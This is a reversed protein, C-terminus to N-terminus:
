RNSAFASNNRTKELQRNMLRSDMYNNITNNIVMNEAIMEGLASLTQRNLPLVAEPGAEGALVNSIGVGKGPNNVIGGSALKITPITIGFAASIKSSIGSFFSNFGNKASTTDTDVKVTYTKDFPNSISKKLDGMEKDADSTDVDLKYKKDFTNDLGKQTDFASEEVNKLSQNIFELQKGYEGSVLNNDEYYQKMYKLNETYEAIQDTTLVDIDYMYTQAEIQSYMEALIAKNHEKAADANKKFLLGIVGGYQAYKKTNERISENNKEIQETSNKILNTATNFINITGQKGKELETNGDEVAQKLVKPLEKWKEQLDQATKKNNEIADNTEKYADIVQKVEIYIVWVSAIALLLGLIGALGTGAVGGAGAIGIIKSLMTLLTAGGLMGMLVEPHDLCWKIINKVIEYVPKLAEAVKEIAKRASESLDNIDFLTSTDVGSSDIGASISTDQLVEMEDFSATLRNNAKTLGNTAQTQKKLIAANAKAIYNTNTLCQAFYLIATILKKLGKIVVEIIGSMISGLGIWNAEMQKTAHDDTSMYASTAKRVLSYAARIGIIGLVLKKASKYLSEFNNKLVSIDGSKKINKINNAIDSANKSVNEEKITIDSFNEAVYPLEGNLEKITQTTEEIQVKTSSLKSIATPDFEINKVSGLGQLFTKKNLDTIQNQIKELKAEASSTDINMKQKKQIESELKRAKNDLDEIQKDFSKTDLETVIRIKGDANNM